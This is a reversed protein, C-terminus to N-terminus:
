LNVKSENLITTLHHRTVAWQYSSLYRMNSRSNLFMSLHTTQMKTPKPGVAILTAVVPGDFYGAPDLIPRDQRGVHTDLFTQAQWIQFQGEVFLVSVWLQNMTSLDWQLLVAYRNFISAGPLLVPM